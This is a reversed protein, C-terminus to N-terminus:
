SVVEPVVTSRLTRTWVFGQEVSSLAMTQEVDVGGHATAFNITWDVQRTETLTTITGSLAVTFTDVLDGCVDVRKQGTVNRNLYVTTFTQPDTGLGFYQIGDESALVVPSPLIWIGDGAPEWTLDGRVEDQWAMGVLWIGPNTGGGDPAPHVLRFVEVSTAGTELDTREVAWSDLRQGESSEAADLATITTEVFGELAGSPPDVPAGGYTLDMAQETTGEQPIGALTRAAPREPVALPEAKPCVEPEAVVVPAAAPKPKPKPPLLTRIPPPPPLPTPPPLPAREVLQAAPTILRPVSISVNRMNLSLAQEPGCATLLLAGVILLCKTQRHTRHRSRM